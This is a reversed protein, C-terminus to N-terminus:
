RSAARSRPRRPDARSARPARSPRAPGRSRVGGRPVRHPREFPLVEELSEVLRVPVDRPGRGPELNGAAREPIPDLLELEPPAPRRRDTRSRGHGPAIGSGVSGGRAPGARSPQGPLPALEREQSGGQDTWRVTVDPASIARARSTSTSFTSLKPPRMSASPGSPTTAAKPSSATSSAGRRAAWAAIAMRLAASRARGAVASRTRMSIAIWTLEPGRPVPPRRAWQDVHRGRGIGM